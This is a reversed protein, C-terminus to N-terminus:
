LWCAATTIRASRKSWAAMLACYFSCPARNDSRFPRDRRLPDSRYIYNDPLFHRAPLTQCSVRLGAQKALRWRRVNKRNSCEGIEYESIYESIRYIEIIQSYSLQCISLDFRMSAHMFAARHSLLNFYCILSPMVILRRAHILLYLNACKWRSISEGTLKNKNCENENARRCFACKVCRADSTASFNQPQSNEASHIGSLDRDCSRASV